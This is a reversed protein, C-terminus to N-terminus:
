KGKTLEKYKDTKKFETYYTDLAVPYKKGAKVYKLSDVTHMNKLRATPLLLKNLTKDAITEVTDPKVDKLVSKFLTEHKVKAKNIAVEKAKKGVYPINKINSYTKADNVNKPILSGELALRSSVVDTIDPAKTKIYTTKAVKKFGLKKLVLYKGM